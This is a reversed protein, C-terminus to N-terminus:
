SALQPKLGFQGLNGETPNSNTDLKPNTLWLKPELYALFSIVPELSESSLRTDLFASSGCFHTMPKAGLSM